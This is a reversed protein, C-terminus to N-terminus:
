ECAIKMVSTLSKQKNPKTKQHKKKPPPLPIVNEQKKNNVLSDTISLGWSLSYENISLSLKHELGCLIQLISRSINNNQEQKISSRNQFCM